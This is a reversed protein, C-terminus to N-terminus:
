VIKASVVSRLPKARPVSAVRAPMLAASGSRRRLLPIAVAAVGAMTLGAALLVFAIM